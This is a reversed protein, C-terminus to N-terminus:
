GDKVSSTDNHLEKIEEIMKLWREWLKATCAECVDELKIDTNRPSSILLRISSQLPDSPGFQQYYGKPCLIRECIDCKFHNTKSM